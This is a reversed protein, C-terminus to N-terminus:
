GRPMPEALYSFTVIAFYLSCSFFL